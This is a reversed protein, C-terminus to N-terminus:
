QEKGELKKEIQEMKLKLLENEKKLEIMYLTLEEIKQMHIKQMDGLDIGNSAIEKASPVGPLHKHRSIYQEVEQMTPLPYDKEFVYDAWSAQTVVVKRAGITGEVALKYLNTRVTGISVNGSRYANRPSALLMDGNPKFVLPALYGSGQLLGYFELSSVGATGSFYGDSRHSINWQFPTYTPLGATTKVKFAVDSYASVADGQILIGDRATANDITLRSTPSLTGIGAAGSPPFTNTQAFSLTAVCSLAAALVFSKMM